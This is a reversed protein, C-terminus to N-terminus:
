SAEFTVTIGLKDFLVEIKNQLEDLTKLTSTQANVYPEKNSAVCVLTPFGTPYNNGARDWMNYQYAAKLTEFEEKTYLKYWIYSKKMLIPEIPVTNDLWPLRLKEAAQVEPKEMIHANEYAECDNISEFETGDFAVYINVLKQISKEEVYM